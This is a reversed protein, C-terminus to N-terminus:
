EDRARYELPPMGLEKGFLAHFYKQEMGIQQCIEGINLRTSKLLGCAIKLRRNNVYRTFTCGEDRKFCKSLYDYNVHLAEATEKLNVHRSALNLHIFEKARRVVDHQEPAADPAPDHGDLLATVRNMTKTLEEVDVPKLIYARVGIKVAQFAYSFEQYASMFVIAVHPCHCAVWEALQIGDMDPMRIDTLLIDIHTQQM